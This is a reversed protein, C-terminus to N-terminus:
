DDKKILPKCCEECTIRSFENQGDRPDVHQLQIGLEAYHHGDFYKKCLDCKYAQAM